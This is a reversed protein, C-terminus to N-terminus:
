ISFLKRHYVWWEVVLALLALAAFWPWLELSIERSSVGAPKVPKARHNSDPVALNAESAATIRADDLSRRAQSMRLLNRLFIPFAVRFPFDSEDLSFGLVVATGDRTSTTMVSIPGDSSLALVERSPEPPFVRAGDAYLGHLNCAAFPGSTKRWSIIRPKEVRSGAGFRGEPPDFVCHLGHYEAEPGGHEWFALDFSTDSKFAGPDFQAVRVDELITLAQALYGDRAGVLAVRLPQEPHFSIEAINDEPLVDDHDLEVRIRAAADLTVGMVLVKREDAEIHERRAEILKEDAFIRLIPDIPQPSHNRAALMLESTRADIPELNLAVIASNAHTVGIPIWQVRGSGAAARPASKDSLGAGPSGPFPMGAGDSLIYAYAEPSADLLEEALRRAEAEDGVGASKVAALVEAIRNRDSSAALAVRAEPATTIITVHHEERGARALEIAKDRALELRTRDGDERARMSDSNDLVIIVHSGLVVGLPIAPRAYALAILIVVLLQLLMLMNSRLRQWFANAHVDECIRKWLLSSPVRARDRRLKLMYLLMVLPLFLLMALGAPELFVM